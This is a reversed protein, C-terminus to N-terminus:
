GVSRSRPPNAVSHAILHERFARAAQPLYHSENWAIGQSFGCAPESIQVSTSDDRPRLTALDPIFAVGLGAMVSDEIVTPEDTECTVRPVVGALRLYAEM